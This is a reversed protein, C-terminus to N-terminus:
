RGRTLSRQSFIGEKLGTNIKREGFLFTSRHKRKLHEVEFRQYAWIDPALQRLNFRKSTKIHEGKKNWFKRQMVLFTAQDVWIHRKGYGSDKKEQPTSPVAEIVYADRGDLSEERLITYAHTALRESRTDEFTLDTGMFNDTNNSATIRRIKRLAPLYMWRDDDRDVHEHTLFRTGRVDAPKLFELFSKDKKNADTKVYRMMERRREKGRKNVLIITLPGTDDDPKNWTETREMIEKATLAWVSGTGWLVAFALLAAVIHWNRLRPASM